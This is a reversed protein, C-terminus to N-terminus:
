MLNQGNRTSQELGITRWPISLSLLNTISLLNNSVALPQQQLNYQINVVDLSKFARKRKAVSGKPTFIKGLLNEIKSPFRLRKSNRKGCYNKKYELFTKVLSNANLKHKLQLMM